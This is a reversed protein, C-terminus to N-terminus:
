RPSGPLEIRVAGDTRFSLRVLGDRPTSLVRIGRGRYRRLVEPAPHGYPNDRGASVLALRPAVVALFRSTSSSKSGHHPVKLVRAALLEPLRAALRAEGTGDLDGTLLVRQAASGSVRSVPEVALVLSRENRGAARGGTEEWDPHLAWWRWSGVRGRGGAALYRVRTGPLRLLQAACPDEEWGRATWVEAVPLYSAIEVLGACHDVDPHTMVVADLRRVGEGLLAPLLVRGGLGGRGKWGGGDVLVAGGEGSLLIADGQGVDLLSLRPAGAPAYLAEAWVLLCVCLAAGALVGRWGPGPRRPGWLVLGLGVALLAAGPASLPLPLFWWPGAPAAAPWTYPAALADLVPLAAAAVPPAAVAAALWVLSAALAVATWPVAALNLLAAAPSLGYFAPLASPLTTLQAAATVALGTLLRSRWPHPAATLPAAGWRQALRPALLLVGATASVTLQFGVQGVLSPRAAVMGLVALGLANAPTPPRELALAAVGAAVMVAARVLSPRPGAALLYLATVALVLALRGRRPLPAGVLWALAALLGLHLGSLALLHGLGSRRLGRVVRPPLDSVDGLVLARALAAGPRGGGAEALATELRRRVEHALRGVPGPGALVEVHRWSKVTLRWPGPPVPLANAFGPSRRLYGTLRLRSGPPPPEEAGPQSAPPPLSVYLDLGLREVRRGQRLREARAPATWGGWETRRWPGTPALVLTVPREPAWRPTRSAPLDERVTTWLLGFAFVSLLIGARRRLALPVALLLLLSVLCSSDASTMRFALAAGSAFAGAALLLPASRVDM